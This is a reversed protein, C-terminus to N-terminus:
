PYVKRRQTGPGAAFHQVSPWATDCHSLPVGLQELANPLASFVQGLQLGSGGRGSSRLIVAGHQAFHYGATM